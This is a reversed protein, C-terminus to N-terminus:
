LINPATFLVRKVGSAQDRQLYDHIADYLDTYGYRFDKGQSSGPDQVIFQGVTDDYGSIVMVHYKVEGAYDTGTLQRADVPVIIPRKAAVEQKLDELSPNEVVKATWGLSAGNVVEAILAMSEDPSKGFEANKLKFIDLIQQRAQAITVEDGSFYNSVMIISTEECANQWPELWNGAPAQSTFPVELQQEAPRQRRVFMFISYVIALALIVGIILRLKINM